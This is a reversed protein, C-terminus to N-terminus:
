KGSDLDCIASYCDNLINKIDEGGLPKHLSNSNSKMQAMAQIASVALEVALEKNSKEM